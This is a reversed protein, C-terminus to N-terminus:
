FWLEWAYGFVDCFFDKAELLQICKTIMYWLRRRLQEREEKAEKVEGGHWLERMKFTNVWRSSHPIQLTVMTYLCMGGADTDDVQPM